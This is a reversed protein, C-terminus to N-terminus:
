AASRSAKRPNPKRGTHIVLLLVLGVLGITHWRDGDPHLDPKSAHLPDGFVAGCNRVVLRAQRPKGGSQGPGMDLAGGAESQLQVCDCPKQVM